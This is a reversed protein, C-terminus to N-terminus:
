NMENIIFPYLYSPVDYFVYPSLHSLSTRIINHDVM